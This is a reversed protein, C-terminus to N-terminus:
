SPTCEAQDECSQNPIMWLYSSTIWVPRNSALNKFHAREGTAFRLTKKCGLCLLRRIFFISFWSRLERLRRWRTTMAQVYMRGLRRLTGWASTCAWNQFFTKTCSTVFVVFMKLMSGRLFNTAQTQFTLGHITPACTNQFLACVRINPLHSARTQSWMLESHAERYAAAAACPRHQRYVTVDGLKIFEHGFSMNLKLHKGRLTALARTKTIDAAEPVERM